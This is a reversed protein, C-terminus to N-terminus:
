AGGGQVKARQERRANSLARAGCMPLCETVLGLRADEWESGRIGDSRSAFPGVHEIGPATDAVEM